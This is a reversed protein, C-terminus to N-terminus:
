AAPAAAAAAWSAARRHHHGRHRGPPAQHQHRRQARLRRRRGPRRRPRQQRRGVARARGRERRRRHHAGPHRDLGLAAKIPTFVDPQATVVLDDAADGPTLTWTRLEDLVGPYAVFTDVDVMTMVTDLHMFARESPCRSPSSRPPRAPARLPPPGPGRGGAPHHARGHRHAGGRPRHRARRRGRHDGLRPGRRRRRVLPRVARGAFLPHFRYIAELHATERRRAPMAMPNVSVGGYIWCTTDRTFLHNPLPPLVFGTPGLSTPGCAGPRHRRPARRRHHRRDPPHRGDDPDAADFFARSPGRGPRPGPRQETIVRDLLWRGPRRRGEDDRGPPRAVYLVEVGRDVLTDAFADHEQRARKVWLVDDFLLDDCNSPTLRRLELDPGTCCCGACSARGRLRRPLHDHRGITAGGGAVRAMPGNTGRGRAVKPGAPPRGVPLRQDVVVPSAEGPRGWSPGIM